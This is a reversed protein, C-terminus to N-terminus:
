HVKSDQRGGLSNIDESLRNLVGVLSTVALVLCAPEAIGAFSRATREFRGREESRAAALLDLFELEDPAARECPAPLFHFDRVREQRIALVLAACRGFVAPGNIPGIAANAACLAAHWYKVDETVYAGCVFRVQALVLRDLDFEIQPRLDQFTETDKSTEDASYRWRTSRRDIKKLM